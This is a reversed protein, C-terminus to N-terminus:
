EHALQLSCPPTPHSAVTTLAVSRAGAVDGRGLARSIMVVGGVAFLVSVDYAVLLIQNALSVAAAANASYSSILITDILTVIMGIGANLLLPYSLQFLTKDVARTTAQGEEGKGPPFEASAGPDGVHSM